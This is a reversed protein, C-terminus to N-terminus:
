RTSSCISGCMVWAVFAKELMLGNDFYGTSDNELPYKNDRNDDNRYLVMNDLDTKAIINSFTDLTVPKGLYGNAPNDLYAKLKIKYDDKFEYMLMNSAYAAGGGSESFTSIEGQVLVQTVGTMNYLALYYGGRDNAKLFQQLYDIENKTLKLQGSTTINSNSNM